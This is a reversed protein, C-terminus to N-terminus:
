LKRRLTARLVFTAHMGLSDARDIVLQGEEGSLFNGPYRPVTILVWATAPKGNSTILNGTPTVQYAGTRLATDAQALPLTISMYGDSYDTGFSCSLGVAPLAVFTASTREARAGRADGHTIDGNVTVQCSGAGASLSGSARADIAGTVALWETPTCSWAALLVM